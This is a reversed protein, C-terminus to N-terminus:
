RPQRAIRRRDVGPLPHGLTRGAVLAHGRRGASASTELWRIAPEPRGQMIALRAEASGVLVWLAPDDLSAVYERLVQM